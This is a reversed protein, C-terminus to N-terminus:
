NSRWAAGQQWLTRELAKTELESLEGVGYARQLRRARRGVESYWGVAGGYWLRCWRRRRRRPREENDDAEAIV